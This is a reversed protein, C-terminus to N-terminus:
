MIIKVTLNCEQFMSSDEKDTIIKKTKLCLFKDVWVPGIAIIQKCPPLQLVGHSVDDAMGDLGKGARQRM